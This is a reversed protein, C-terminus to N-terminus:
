SRRHKALLSSLSAKPDPPTITLGELKSSSIFNNLKTEEFRAYPDFNYRPFFRELRQIHAILESHNKSHIKFGLSNSIKDRADNLPLAECQSYILERNTYLFLQLHKIKALLSTWGQAGSKLDLQNEITRKVYLFKGLRKLDELTKANLANQLTTNM